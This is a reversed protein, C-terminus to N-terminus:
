KLKVLPLLENGCQLIHFVSEVEYNNLDIQVYDGTRPLTRLHVKLEQMKGKSTFQLRVLIM